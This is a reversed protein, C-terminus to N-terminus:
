RNVSKKIDAKKLSDLNRQIKRQYSTDTKLREFHEKSEKWYNQYYKVQNELARDQGKLHRYYSTLVIGSMDDPHFIGISNFYKALKGGGWLRWNNRMWTGMGFHSRLGFQDETMRLINRKTTDHHLKELQLIAEDLNKPKYKLDTKSPTQGFVSICALYLVIALIVVKM